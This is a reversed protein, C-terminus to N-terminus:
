FPLTKGTQGQKYIAAVENLTEKIPKYRFGEVTLSKSADFSFSGYVHNLIDTGPSRGSFINTVMLITRALWKPASRFKKKLSLEEAIGLYIERYSVNAGNLLWRHGTMSKELLIVIFRAVDRVDIYGTQGGPYWPSYKAVREFLQLSSQHWNGTGLIVSPLIVSVNLGEGAGRWVELEALYKSLGYATSYQNQLWANSEDLTVHNTEKGLAGISGIYILHDVQHALCANVIIETGVKNIELLRYKDEHHYSVLAASHIVWDKDLVVDFTEPIDPLKLSKWDIGERLDEPISDPNQFTATLQTYGKQKFWRLLYSGLLGSGGTVLIRPNKM